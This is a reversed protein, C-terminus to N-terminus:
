IRVFLNENDFLDLQLAAMNSITTDGLAISFVGRVIPLVVSNSPEGDAKIGDNRWLSNNNNDVIAFKFEGQGEIPKGDKQVSGQFNILKPVSKASNPILFVIGMLLFM